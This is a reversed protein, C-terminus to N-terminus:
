LDEETITFDDAPDVREKIPHAPEDEGEKQAESQETEENLPVIPIRRVAAAKLKLKPATIRLVGDSMTVTIQDIDVNLQNITFIRDFNSQISKEENRYQRSGRVRLVSGDEELQVTIDEARVGPLDMALEVHDDGETLEYNPHAM